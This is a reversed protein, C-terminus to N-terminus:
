FIRISRYLLYLDQFKIESMHPHLYPSKWTLLFRSTRVLVQFYSLRVCVCLGFKKLTAIDLTIYISGFFQKKRSQIIYSRYTHLHPTNQRNQARKKQYKKFTEQINSRLLQKSYTMTKIRMRPWLKLSLQQSTSYM